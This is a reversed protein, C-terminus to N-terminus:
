PFLWQRFAAPPGDNLRFSGSLSGGREAKFRFIVTQAGEQLHFRYRVGNLVPEQSVPDPTIRLLEVDTLYDGSLWLTFTSGKQPGAQRSFIFQSESHARAFRDYDLVMVQAPQQHDTLELTTRSLPGHGFLGAAAAMLIGAISWWGIREIRWMRHQFARDEDIQLEASHRSRETRGTTPM